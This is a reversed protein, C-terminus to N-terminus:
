DPIFEDTVISASSQLIEARDCDIIAKVDPAHNEALYKILPKAAEKFKKIEEINGTDLFIGAM